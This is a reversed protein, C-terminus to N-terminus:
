KSIDTKGDKEEENIINERPIIYKKESMLESYSSLKGDLTKYITDAGLFSFFGIWLSKPFKISTFTICFLVGILLNLILSYVSLHKSNKLCCKTKQIFACTITSLTVSIILAQKLFDLNLM